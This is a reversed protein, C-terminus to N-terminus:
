AAKEELMRMVAAIDELVGELTWYLGSSEEPSLEIGEDPGLGCLLRQNWRILSAARCLIDYPHGSM